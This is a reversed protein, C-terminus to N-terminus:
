EAVFPSLLKGCSRLPKSLKSSCYSRSGFILDQLTICDVLFTACFVIRYAFFCRDSQLCTSFLHFYPLMRLKHTCDQIVKLEGEDPFPSLSSIAHVCFWAINCKM